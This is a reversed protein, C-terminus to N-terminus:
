NFEIFFISFKLQDDIKKRPFFFIFLLLLIINYHMSRGSYEVLLPQWASLNLAM